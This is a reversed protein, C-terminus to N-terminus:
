ITMFKMEIKLQLTNLKTNLNKILLEYESRQENVNQSLSDITTKMENEFQELELLIENTNINEFLKLKDKLYTYDFILQGILSYGYLFGDDYGDQETLDCGHRFGDKYRSETLLQVDRSAVTLDDSNEDFVDMSPDM